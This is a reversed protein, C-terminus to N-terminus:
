LLYTGLADTAAYLYADSPKLYYFNEVDGLTESFSSGRWGLYYDESKKLSPYPINTDILFIIAQVDIINLKSMDYYCYTYKDKEEMSLGAKLFGYQEMFRTDFRMNFMLTYKTNKMKVYILDLAAKGLGPNVKTGKYYHLNKELDEKIEKGEQGTEELSDYEEKSIEIQNVLYPAHEVPVYYANKGDMCFSYGVLFDTDPNLGTTETDFAIYNTPQKLIETLEEISDILKFNFAGPYSDNPTAPGMYNEYDSSYAM